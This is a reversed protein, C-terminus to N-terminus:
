EFLEEVEEESVRCDGELGEFPNALVLYNRREEFIKAFLIIVDTATLVPLIRYVLVPLTV